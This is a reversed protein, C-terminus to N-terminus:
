RRRGGDRRLALGMGVVVALALVERAAVVVRLAPVREPAVVVRLARPADAARRGVSLLVTSSVAPEPVVALRGTVTVIPVATVAVAIVAVAIMPHDVRDVLRAVHTLV